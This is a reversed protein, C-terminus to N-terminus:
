NTKRHVINFNLGSLVTDVLGPSRRSSLRVAFSAPTCGQTPSHVNFADTRYLINFLFDYKTRTRHGKYKGSIIGSLETRFSNNSKNMSDARVTKRRCGKGLAVNRITGGSVISQAILRNIGGLDGLRPVQRPVFQCRIRM